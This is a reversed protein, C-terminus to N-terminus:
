DEDPTVHGTFIYEIFGRSSEFLEVPKAMEMFQNNEFWHDFYEFLEPDKERTYGNTELWKLIDDM